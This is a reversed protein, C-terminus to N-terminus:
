RSQERRRPQPAPRLPVWPPFALAVAPGLSLARFSPCLVSFPFDADEARREPMARNTTYKKSGAQRGRYCPLRAGGIAQGMTIGSKWKASDGSQRPAIWCRITQSLVSLEPIESSAPLRQTNYNQHASSRIGSSTVLRLIQHASNSRLISHHTDPTSVSARAPCSFPSRGHNSERRFM